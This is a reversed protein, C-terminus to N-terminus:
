QSIKPYFCGSPYKKHPVTFIIHLHDTDALEVLLKNSSLYCSSRSCIKLFLITCQLDTFNFVQLLYSSIKISMSVNDSHASYGTEVLYVYNGLLANLSDWFLFAFTFSFHYICFQYLFQAVVTLFAELHRFRSCNPGKNHHCKEPNDDTSDDWPNHWLSFVSPLHQPTKKYM